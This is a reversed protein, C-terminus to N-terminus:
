GDASKAAARLASWGCAWFRASRVWWPASQARRARKRSLVLIAYKRHYQTTQVYEDLIQGREKKSAKAYRKRLSDLYQDDSQSM